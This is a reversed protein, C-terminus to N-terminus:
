QYYVKMGHKNAYDIMKAHALISRARRRSLEEPSYNAMIDTDRPYFHLEKGFYLDCFQIIATDYGIHRAIQLAIFLTSGYSYVGETIPTETQEYKIILPIVNSYEYKVMAETPVFAIKCSMINAVVEDEYKDLVVPDTCIYYKPRWNTEPYVRNILNTAFSPRKLQSTDMNSGNGVLYCYDTEKTGRLENLNM